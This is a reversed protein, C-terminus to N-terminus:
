GVGRQAKTQGKTQKESPEEVEKGDRYSVTDSFSDLPQFAQHEVFIFGSGNQYSVKLRSLPHHNEKAFFDPLKHLVSV